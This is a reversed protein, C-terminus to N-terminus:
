FFTEDREELMELNIRHGRYRELLFVHRTSDAIPIGGIVTISLHDTNKYIRSTLHMVPFRFVSIMKNIFVADPASYSGLYRKDVNNPITRLQRHANTIKSSVSQGTYRIELLSELPLYCLSRYIALNM